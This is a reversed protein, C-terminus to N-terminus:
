SLKYEWLGNKASGRRRREVRHSGHAKKRLDRIRASIGAESGGTVRQIESLTLWKGTDLEAKVKHLLTTLRKGDLERDFTEGGFPFDDKYLKVGTDFLAPQAIM